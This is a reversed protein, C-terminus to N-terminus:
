FRRRVTSQYIRACPQGTGCIIDVLTLGESHAAVAKSVADGELAVVFRASHAPDQLAHQWLTWDSDNITRILPISAQQVAGVHDSTYM